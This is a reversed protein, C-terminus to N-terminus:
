VHVAMAAYGVSDIAGVEGSVEASTTHEILTAAKGGLEVAAALAAAAAGAGCANRRTRAEEVLDEAQLGVAKDLFRRDNVSKAWQLGEAGRGAPEFDFSPGYHTLDTSGLFAVERGLRAAARAVWRGLGAAKETPNVSLPVILVGLTAIQVLPLEVEIAHERAHAAADICVDPSAAIARCLEEDVLLPGLPTEWSGTAYLSAVNRDRTHVAGFIVITEISRGCVAAVSRAATRGSFRWGAHPILAALADGREVGSLLAEADKRCRTPDAPYFTGDVAPRRM